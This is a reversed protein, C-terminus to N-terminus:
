NNKLRFKDLIWRWHGTQIIMKDRIKRWSVNKDRIKKETFCFTKCSGWSWSFQRSFDLGLQHFSHPASFWVCAIGERKVQHGREGPIRPACTGCWGWPAGWPKSHSQARGQQLREQEEDLVLGEPLVFSTRPDWIQRCIFCFHHETM